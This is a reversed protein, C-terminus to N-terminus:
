DPSALFRDLKEFTPDDRNNSWTYLRGVLDLEMLSHHAIIVNFLFSWRNVGGPKNREIDWRIV